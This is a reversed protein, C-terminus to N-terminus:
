NGTSEKIRYGRKEIAREIEALGTKTEDFFVVAASDSLTAKVSAVGDIENVGKEISTVCMDCHMGSVHIVKEVMAETAQSAEAVARSKESGCSFLLLAAGLILFKHMPNFNYM